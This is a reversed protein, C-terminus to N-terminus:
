KLPMESRPAKKVKHVTAKHSPANKCGSWRIVLISIM